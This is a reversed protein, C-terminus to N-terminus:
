TWRLQCSGPYRSGPYPSHLRLHRPCSIGTSPANNGSHRGRNTSVSRAEIASATAAPSHPWLRECLERRVGGGGLNVLAVPHGPRLVAQLHRVSSEAFRSFGRRETVPRAM